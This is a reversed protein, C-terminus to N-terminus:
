VRFGLVRFGFGLVRFGVGLVRVRARYLRDGPRRCSRTIRELAQCAAEPFHRGHVQKPNLPKSPQPALLAKPGNPKPKFSKKCLYNEM